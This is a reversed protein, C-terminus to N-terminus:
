GLHMLHGFSGEGLFKSIRAFMNISTIIAIIAMVRVMKTVAVTMVLGLMLGMKHIDVTSSTHMKITKIAITARSSNTRSTSRMM